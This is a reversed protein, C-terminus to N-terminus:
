TITLRTSKTETQIQLQYNQVSANQPSLIWTFSIMKRQAVKNNDSKTSM